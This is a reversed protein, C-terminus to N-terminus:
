NKIFELTKIIKANEKNNVRVLYVGKSWASINLMETNTNSTTKFIIKGASNIVQLENTGTQLGTVYITNNAPNPFISMPITVGDCRVSVISSYYFRTDKDIIKLRYLSFAGSKIQTKFLYSRLSPSNTAGNVSGIKNWTSGYDTSNEIEFRDSNQESSTEWLLTGECNSKSIKFSQLGIPLVTLDNSKTFTQIYGITSFNTLYNFQVYNVGDEKGYEDPILATATNATFGNGVPLGSATLSAVTNAVTGEYKFWKWTSDVLIPKAVGGGNGVMSSGVIWSSDNKIEASDYYFRFKVPSTIATGTYTINVMRAGLVAASDYQKTGVTVSLNTKRRASAATSADMTVTYAVGTNAGFNIAFVKNNSGNNKHYTWGSADTCIVPSVYTAGACSCTGGGGATNNFLVVKSVTTQGWGITMAANTPNVDGTPSWIVNDFVASHTAADYSSSPVIRIAGTTFDGDGDDDILLSISSASVADLITNNLQWRVQTKYTGTNAGTLHVRFERAIRSDVCGPLTTPLDTTIRTSQNAGNSGWIIYEKDNLFENDVDEQDSSSPIKGLALTVVTDETNRSVKQMLCGADDRGIGTISRNYRTYSATDPLADVYATSDWLVAADSGLYQPNLITEGNRIGLYTEVRDKEQPTLLKEYYIADHLSYGLSAINYNTPFLHNNPAVDDYSGRLSLDNHYSQAIANDGAYHYNLGTSGLPTGLTGNMGTSDRFYPYVRGADCAAPWNSFAMSWTTQYNRKAAMPFNSTMLRQGLSCDTNGEIVTGATKGAAYYGSYVQFGPLNGRYGASWVQSNIGLAGVIPHATSAFATATDAFNVTNNPTNNSVRTLLNTFVFGPADTAGFDITPNFNSAATPAAFIGQYTANNYAASGGDLLGYRWYGDPLGSLNQVRRIPQGYVADTLTATTTDSYVKGNQARIWATYGTVGGPACNAGKGVVAFYQTLLSGCTTSANSAGMCFNITATYKSGSLTLPYYVPNTFNVDTGVVVYSNCTWDIASLESKDFYVNIAGVDKGMQEEAQWKRKTWVVNVSTLCVPPATIAAFGGPIARTDRADGGVGNSGVLLSFKDGPIVSANAANDTANLAGLSITLATKKNVSHSQKQNLSSANDLTIGIIDKKFKAGGCATDYAITGGSLYYNHLLTIGYKIGLYTDVRDAEDGQTTNLKKDYLIVEPIGGQWWRGGNYNTLENGIFLSPAAPTYNYGWSWKDGNMRTQMATKADLNTVYVGNNTAYKDYSVSNIYPIGNFTKREARAYNFNYPPPTGNQYWYYDDVTAYYYGSAVGYYQQNLGWWPYGYEYNTGAFPATTAGLGTGLFWGQNNNLAGVQYLTAGQAYNLQYDPKNSHAKYAFLSSFQKTFDVYPNFNYQLVPTRYQPQRNGFFSTQLNVGNQIANQTGDATAQDAWTAIDTGNAVPTISTAKYWTRLGTSVGGPSQAICYINVLLLVALLTFSVPNFHVCVNKKSQIKM